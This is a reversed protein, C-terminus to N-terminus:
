FHKSNKLGLVNVVVLLWFRGSGVEFGRWRLCIFSIAIILLNGRANATSTHLIEKCLFMSCNFLNLFSLSNHPNYQQWSAYMTNASLKHVSSNFQHRKCYHQSDGDISNHLRATQTVFVIYNQYVLTNTPMFYGTGNFCLLCSRRFFSQASVRTDNAWLHEENKPLTVPRM